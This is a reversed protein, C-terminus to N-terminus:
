FYIISNFLIKETKLIETFLFERSTSVVSTDITRFYADAIVCIPQNCFVTGSVIVILKPFLIVNKESAAVCAFFHGRMPMPARRLVTLYLELGQGGLSQFTSEVHHSLTEEDHFADAYAHIQKRLWSRLLFEYFKALLGDLIAKRDHRDIYLGSLNNANGDSLDLHTLTLTMIVLPHTTVIRVACLNRCCQRLIACNRPAINYCCRLSM